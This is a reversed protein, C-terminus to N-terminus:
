WSTNGGIIQYWRVMGRRREYPTAPRTSYGEEPPRKAPPFLEAFREVAEDVSLGEAKCQKVAAVMEQTLSARQDIYFDIDSTIHDGHGCAIFRPKLRKYTELTELYVDPSRIDHSLGGSKAASMNDAAFLVEEEPIYVSTQGPTHGPMLMIQFTHSGLRLTMRDSFTISPLGRRYEEISPLPVPVDDYLRDTQTRLWLETNTETMFESTIESAIVPADFLGNTMNHDFHFETTIIYRLKGWKAIEEKWPEVRVLDMPIDICVVGESTVVFGPNCGRLKTAVFANKTPQVIEM